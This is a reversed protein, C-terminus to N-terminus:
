DVGEPPNLLVIRSELAHREAMGDARRLGHHELLELPEGGLDHGGEGPPRASSRVAAWTPGGADRRPRRARPRAGGPSRWDRAPRASARPSDAERNRHRPRM